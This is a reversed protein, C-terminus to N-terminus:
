NRQELKFFFVTYIRKIRTGNFLYFVSSVSAVSSWQNNEASKLTEM